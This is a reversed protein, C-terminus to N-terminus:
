TSSPTRRSARWWWGRARARTARACASASATAAAAPWTPAGRARATPSPTAWSPSRRTPARRCWWSRGATPPPSAPTPPSARCTSSWARPGRVGRLLPRRRRPPAPRPPGEPPGHRRLAAGRDRGSGRGRLPGRQHAVRAGRGGRRRRGPAAAAEEAERRKPAFLRRQERTTGSGPGRRRRAWSTGSTSSPPRARRPRDAERAPGAPRGGRLAPPHRERAMLARVEGAVHRLLRTM